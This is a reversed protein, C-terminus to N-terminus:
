PKWVGRWWPEGWRVKAVFFRMKQAIYSSLVESATSPVKYGSERLWTLLSGLVAIQYFRPDRM